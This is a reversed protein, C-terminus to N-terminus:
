LRGDNTRKVLTEEATWRWLHNGVGEVLGADRLCLVIALARHEGLSLFRAVDATTVLGGPETGHRVAIYKAATLTREMWARPISDDPVGVPRARLRRVVADAIADALLERENM